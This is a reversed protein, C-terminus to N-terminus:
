SSQWRDSMVTASRLDGNADVSVSTGVANHGTRIMAMAINMELRPSWTQSTVVGVKNGHGDLVQWYDRMPGLGDGEIKLNVLKKEPGTKAIKALVDRCMYEAKKDVDIFKELSAEFPNNDITMDQGYSKLGSEIREILNPAGARLNFPKGAAWFVDWLADGKSADRLYIEFGGQGSWGSRALLVPAGAITEEIFRFFGIKRVHEGVVAAVLDEAKPGQVALPSADPEVVRVDFGRGYAIGKVWLLVDSDAISLWYKDEALKLIIPDNVIGGYEDCLPAYLGQGVVCRSIDRPTILEVLSLADPGSIEVQRQAAVDWVQAHSCLHEYDAALSEYILPLTMHNYISFYTAGNARARREFPSARLRKSLLTSIVQM